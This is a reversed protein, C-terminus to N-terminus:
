LYEVVAVEGLPHGLEGEAEQHYELEAVEVQRYVQVEVVERHCEVGVVVELHCEVGVVVELHYEM